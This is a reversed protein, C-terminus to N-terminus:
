ATCEERTWCRSAAREHTARLSDRWRPPRLSDTLVAEGMFDKLKRALRDRTQRIASPSVGFVPALAELPQGELLSTLIARSREDLLAVFGQWDLKRACRTAPDDGDSGLIEGLCLPEGSEVATTVPDDLSQMRSHGKLQACPHLPDTSSTGYSRRGSRAKLVAYHAVNGPTVQKGRAALSVLSAAALAITDQILEEADDSGVQPVHLPVLVRIRPAIEQLLLTATEPSM